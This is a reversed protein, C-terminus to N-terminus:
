FHLTQEPEYDLSASRLMLPNGFEYRREPLHLLSRLAANERRLARVRSSFYRIRELLIQNEDACDKLQARLTQDIQRIKIELKEAKTPLRRDSMYIQRFIGKYSCETFSYTSWEDM